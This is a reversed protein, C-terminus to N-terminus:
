PAKSVSLEVVGGQLRDWINSVSLACSGPVACDIRRADVSIFRQVIYHDSVAGKRDASTYQQTSGVVDCRLGGLQGSRCENLEIPAGPEFHSAQVLITQNDKLQSVPRLHVVPPGLSSGAPRRTRSSRRAGDFVVASYNIDQNRDHLFRAPTVADTSTNVLLGGALLDQGGPLWRAWSVSEGIPITAGPVTRTSGSRTDVIALQTAPTIFGTSPDDFSGSKQVFVALDHGAPSFSGGSDFGGSLPSAIQRTALTKSDTIELKYRPESAFNIWAILSRDSGPATYSGIVAQDRGVVRVKGSRPNWIGFSSGSQAPRGEPASQVVIGGTVATPPTFLADRSLRWGSPLHWRPALRKGSPSVETVVSGNVQVYLDRGDPTPFVAVGPGLSSPTGSAPDFGVISTNDSQYLGGPGVPANNRVWFLRGGAQVLPTTPDGGAAAVVSQTKHSLDGVHLQGYYDIWAAM